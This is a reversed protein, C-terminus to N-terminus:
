KKEEILKRIVPIGKERVEEKSLFNRIIVIPQRNREFLHKLENTTFVVDYNEGSAVFSDSCFTEVDLGEEKLVDNLTIRLVVSSGVGFGCVLMAKLRRM